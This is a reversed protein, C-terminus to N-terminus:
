FIIKSFGRLIAGNESDVEINPSLSPRKIKFDAKTDDIVTVSSVDKYHYLDIKTKTSCGVLLFSLLIGLLTKNLRRV